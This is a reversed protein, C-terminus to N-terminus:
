ADDNATPAGMISDVFPGLRVSLIATLAAKLADGPLFPLVGIGLAKGWDVNKLLKLRVVGVVLIALFGALTAVISRLKGRRHAIL